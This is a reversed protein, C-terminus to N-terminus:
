RLRSSTTSPPSARLGSSQYHSLELRPEFLLQARQDLEAVSRTTQIEGRRDSWRMSAM